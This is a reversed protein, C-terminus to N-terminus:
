ADDPVDVEPLAPAARHADIRKQAEERLAKTKNVVVAAHVGNTAAFTKGKVRFAERTIKLVYAAIGADAKGYDKKFAADGIGLKTKIFHIVEMTVPDGHVRTGGEGCTGDYLGARIADVKATAMETAKAETLKVKKGKPGVLAGKFMGSHGDNLIRKAGYRFLRVAGLPHLRKVEIKETRGTTTDTYEFVLGNPLLLGGKERRPLLLDPTTAPTTTKATKSRATM